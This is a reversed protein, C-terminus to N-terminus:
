LNLVQRRDHDENRHESLTDVRLHVDRRNIWGVDIEMALLRGNSRDVTEHSSRYDVRKKLGLAALLEAINEQLRRWMKM